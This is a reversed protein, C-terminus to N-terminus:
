DGDGASFGAGLRLEPGLETSLILDLHGLKTQLGEIRVRMSLDEVAEPLPAGIAGLRMDIDSLIPLIDDLLVQPTVPAFGETYLDQFGNLQAAILATSLGARWAESRKPFAREFSGLPRGLRHEKMRLISFGLATLVQQSFERHSLCVPNEPGARRVLDAWGDPAFWDAYLTDAMAAINAAIGLISPCTPLDTHLLREMAPLGQLAASSAGFQREFVLLVRESLARHDVPAAQAIALTPLLCTALVAILRMM